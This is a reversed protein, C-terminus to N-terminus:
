VRPPEFPSKPNRQSDEAEENIERRVQKVSGEVCCRNQFSDKNRNEQSQQYQCKENRTEGRKVREQPIEKEHSASSRITEFIESVTSVKLVECDM